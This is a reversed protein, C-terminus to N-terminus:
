DSSRRVARTGILLAWAEWRWSAPDLSRAAEQVVVPRDEPPLRGLLTENVPPMALWDCYAAQTLRYVVNTRSMALGQDEFVAAVSAESLPPPAEAPPKGLNLRSLAEAVGTLWPDAGGGPADPEGLYAAPLSVALVGGPALHGALGALVTEVPGMAWLAASCIVRDFQGDEPPRACWFVPLGKTREMGVRRMAEAAEVATVTDEPGLRELLAMATCGIGAAVDLVRQGPAVGAAQVLAESAVRYRDHRETFRRYCEATVPHDWLSLSM